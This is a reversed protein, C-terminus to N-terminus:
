PRVCTIQQETSHCLAGHFTAVVVNPKNVRSGTISELAPFKSHIKIEWCKNKNKEGFILKFEVSYM